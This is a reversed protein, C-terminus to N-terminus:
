KGSLPGLRQIRGQYISIGDGSICEDFEAVSDNYLILSVDNRTSVERLYERDKATVGRSSPWVLYIPAWSEGVMEEARKLAAVFTAHDDDPRQEAVSRWLRRVTEKSGDWEIQEVPEGARNPRLLISVRHDARESAIVMITRLVIDTYGTVDDRVRTVVVVPRAEPRQRPDSMASQLTQSPDSVPACGAGVVGGLWLAALVRSSYQGFRHCM